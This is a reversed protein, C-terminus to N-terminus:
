LEHIFEKVAEAICSFLPVDHKIYLDEVYKEYVFTGDYDRAFYGGGMESPNEYAVVCGDETIWFECWENFNQKVKNEWNLDM